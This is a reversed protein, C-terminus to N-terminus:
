RRLVALGLVYVLLAFVFWHLLGWSWPRKPDNFKLYLWRAGAYMLVLMGTLVWYGGVAVRPSAALFITLGAIGIVAKLLKAVSGEGLGLFVAFAVAVSVLFQPPVLGTEWADIVFKTLLFIIFLHYLFDLM